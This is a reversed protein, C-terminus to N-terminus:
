HRDKLRFAVIINLIAALCPLIVQLAILRDDNVHHVAEELRSNLARVAVTHTYRELRIHVDRQRNRLDSEDLLLQEPNWEVWALSRYEIIEADLAVLLDVMELFSNALGEIDIFMAEVDNEDLIVLNATNQRLIFQHRYHVVRAKSARSNESELNLWVRQLSIVSVWVEKLCAKTIIASGRCVGDLLGRSLSSAEAIRLRLIVTCSYGLLSSFLRLASLLCLLM